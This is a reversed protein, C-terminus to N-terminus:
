RESNKDFCRYIKESKFVEKAPELSEFSSNNERLTQLCKELAKQNKKKSCLCKSDVDTEINTINKKRNTTFLDEQNQLEAIKSCHM